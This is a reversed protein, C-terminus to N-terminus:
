RALCMRVAATLADIAPRLQQQLPTARELIRAVDERSAGAAMAQRAEMYIVQLQDLIRQNTQRFVTVADEICKQQARTLSPPTERPPVRRSSDARAAFEGPTATAEFVLADVQEELNDEPPSASNDSCALLVACCLGTILAQLRM